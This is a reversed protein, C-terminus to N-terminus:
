EAFPQTQSAASSCCCCPTCCCCCSDGSKATARLQQVEGAHFNAVITGRYSAFLGEISVLDQTTLAKIKPNSSPEPPILFAKTLDGFDAPTLSKVLPSANFQTLTAPTFIRGVSYDSETTTAM